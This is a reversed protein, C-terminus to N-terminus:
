SQAVSSPSAASLAPGPPTHLCGPSRRAVALRPQVGCLQSKQGDQSAPRRAPALGAATPPARLTQIQALCGTAEDRAEYHRTSPNDMHILVAEKEGVPLAARKTREPKGSELRPSSHTRGHKPESM